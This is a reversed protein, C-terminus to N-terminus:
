RTAIGPCREAGGKGENRVTSVWIVIRNKADLRCAFQTSCHALRSIQHDGLTAPRGRDDVATQLPDDLSCAAKPGDPRDVAGPVTDLAHELLLQEIERGLRGFLHGQQPERRGGTGDACAAVLQLLPLVLIELAHDVHQPGVVHAVQEVDAAVVGHVRGVLDGQQGVLAPQVKHGDAHGLRDVVVHAVARKLEDIVRGAVPRHGTVPHVHDLVGVFLIRARARGIRHQHQLRHAALDTENRGRGPQGIGPSLHRQLNVQGLAGARELLQGVLDVVLQTPGAPAQHHEALPEVDAIQALHFVREAVRRETGALQGNRLDHHVVQVFRPQGGLPGGSSVHRPVSWRCEM